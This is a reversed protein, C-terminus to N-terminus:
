PTGAAAVSSGVSEGGRLYLLVSVIMSWALIVLFGVFGIPTVSVIGVPILVWGLWKPLAGSRLIAVGNGFSFTSAGILFPLFLDNSLVNLAQAGSADLTNRADGLAFDFALFTVVGLALLLAGGFGLAAPGAARDARRLHARLAAAFFLLFVMGYAGLIASAMQRAHHAKYYSIVTAGSAHVSPTSGGVVFSAVVLGAAIFAALPVLRSWRDSM